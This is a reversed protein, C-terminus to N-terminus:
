VAPIDKEFNMWVREIKRLSELYGGSAVAELCRSEVGTTASQALQLLDDM